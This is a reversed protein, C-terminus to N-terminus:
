AIGDKKIFEKLITAKKELKNDVKSDSLHNDYKEQSIIGKQNGVNNKAEIVLSKDNENLNRETKDLNVSLEIESFDNMNLNQNSFNDIKNNNNKKILNNNCNSNKQNNETFNKDNIKDYAINEIPESPNNNNNYLYDRKKKSKNENKVEMEFLSDKEIINNVPYLNGKNSGLNRKDNDINISNKENLFNSKNNEKLQLSRQDFHNKITFNRRKFIMNIIELNFCSMSYFGVLLKGLINLTSMIGGMQAFIDQLKSYSRRIFTLKKSFIIQINVLDIEGTYDAEYTNLRYNTDLKDIIIDTSTEFTPFVIGKDTEIKVARFYLDFYKQLGVNMFISDHSMITKLPDDYNNPDLITNYYFLHMTNKVFLEKLTSNRVCNGGKEKLCKIQIKISTKFATLNLEKNILTNKDIDLCAGDKLYEPHREFITKYDINPSILQSCNKLDLKIKTNNESVYYFNTQFYKNKLLTDSDHNKFIFGLLFNDETLNTLINEKIYFFEETLKPHMKQRLDYSFLGACFIVFFNYFISLLGGVETKYSRQKNFTLGFTYPFIDISELIKKM